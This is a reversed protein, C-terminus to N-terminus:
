VFDDDSYIKEELLGIQESSDKMLEESVIAISEKKIMRRNYRLLFIIVLIFIILVASVMATYMFIGNLFPTTAEYSVKFSGNEIVACYGSDSQRKTKVVTNDDNNITKANTIYESSESKVTYNIPINTNAGTLMHNINVNDSVRIDTVVSLNNTHRSSEFYNGSGFVSSVANNIDASSGRHTVRCIIGEHTSERSATVGKSTLFRYAYNVGKEGTNRDYVFDVERKFVENELPTLTINIGKITYQMGDPIRIDYVGSNDKIKYTNKSWNGSTKWEGGSLEVGQGHTTEDPLTYNYSVEVNKDTDSVMSMVNIKEEFVLQEALPTSSQNQDGYYISANRNDLFLRTYEEMREIDINEYKVTFIMYGNSKSWSKKKADKGARSKMLSDLSDGLKDYSESSVSLIMTRDYSGNKHNVTDITIGHVAEGKVTSTDLVSSKSNLVEGNYKVINSSSNLKLVIDNYGKQYLSDALWGVLEIGDYDEKYYTGKALVSDTYGSAVAIQNGIISAVKIKYDDVSSFSVVFICRYHGDQIESRCSMVPPCNEKIVNELIKQKDKEKAFDKGFDITVIREGAFDDAIKMFNEVKADVEGCGSMFVTAFMVVLILILLKLMIKINRM